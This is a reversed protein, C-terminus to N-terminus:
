TRRVAAMGAGVILFAMFIVIQLDTVSMELDPILLAAENLAYIIYIFALGVGSVSAFLMAGTTQSMAFFGVFVVVVGPLLIILTGVDDSTIGLIDEGSYLLFGVIVAFMVLVIAPIMENRRIRM